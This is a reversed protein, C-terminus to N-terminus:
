VSPSRGSGVTVWLNQRLPQFTVSSTGTVAIVFMAMAPLTLATQLRPRPSMTLKQNNAAFAALPIVVFATLDSYDVVRGFNTIGITRVVDIIPETAASKWLVFLLAVLCGSLRIRGPVLAFLVLSVLFIGAFDSLKGTVWNSYTAKLYYDNLLLLALSVFFPWSLFVQL